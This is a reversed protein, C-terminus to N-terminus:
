EDHEALAQAVRMLIRRDDQGLSKLRQFFAADEETEVFLIYVPVGLAHAIAELRRTNALRTGKEIQALLSRSMEAQSALIEQTWGLEERLKKIM